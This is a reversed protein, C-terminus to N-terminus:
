VGPRRTHWSTASEFAQGLRLLAGESFPKGILQLGIPMGDTSFGCPVSLACLGLWNVARTTLQRPQDEVLEDRRPAQTLMTPTLLADVDRMSELAARMDEKQNQLVMAYDPGSVSASGRTLRDLVSPDCNEPQQTFAERHSAYGEVWMLSLAGVGEVGRVAEPMEMEVFTVGEEALVGTAEEVAKLVDKDAGKYFPDRVIGVRMGRVSKGLSSVGTDTLATLTTEDNMNPGAIVDYLLAADEVSRTMPGATDLTWSLPTLGARSVRGITTKLGVIGCFSSPIRVSGGTDTGIATCTLGLGVATGSGSSSGGPVRASDWPNQPIGYHANFGYPGFAFEVMNTKGLLITGAAALKRAVFCSREPMFGERSKSGSTTLVGTTECLDKLALPVGTLPGPDGSMLVQEAAVADARAREATVTIYASGLPSEDAVQDVVAIRELYADTVEVPSLERKRYLRGLESATLWHLESM